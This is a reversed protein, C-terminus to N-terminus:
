FAAIVDDVQEFITLVSEHTTLADSHVILPRKRFLGLFVWPSKFFEATVRDLWGGTVKRLDATLSCLSRVWQPAKWYRLTVKQTKTLGGVGYIRIGKPFEAQSDLGKSVYKLLYGSGPVRAPVVQTLGHPWWGRKDPHPLRLGVPLWVLLHYHVAGRKQMEAVWVYRFTFGRRKLWQKVCDVFFRIHGPDWCNRPGYTLTVMLVRDPRFGRRQESFAVGANYVTKRLKSVRLLKPDLLFGSKGVPHHGRPLEKLPPTKM